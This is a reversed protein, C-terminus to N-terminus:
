LFSLQAPTAKPKNTWKRRSPPLGSLPDVMLASVSFAWADFASDFGMLSAIEPDEWTSIGPISETLRICLGWGKLPSGM